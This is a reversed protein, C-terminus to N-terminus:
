VFSVVSSKCVPFNLISTPFLVSISSRDTTNDTNTGSHQVDLVIRRNKAQPFVSMRLDMLPRTAITCFLKATSGNSFASKTNQL